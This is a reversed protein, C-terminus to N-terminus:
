RAGVAHSGRRDGLRRLRRYLDRGVYGGGVAGIVGLELAFLVNNIVIYVWLAYVSPDRDVWYRVHGALQCLFLVALIPKWINALTKERRWAIWCMAILSLDQVPYHAMTWPPVPPTGPFLWHQGADLMHKVAFWMTIVSACALLEHAKAEVKAAWMTLLLVAGVAIAFYLSM